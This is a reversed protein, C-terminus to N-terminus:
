LYLVRIVTSSYLTHQPALITTTRPAYLRERMAKVAAQVARRHAKRPTEPLARDKAQQRAERRMTRFHTEMPKHQSMLIKLNHQTVKAQHTIMSIWWEAAQLPMKLCHALPIKFISRYHPALAPHYEYIHNIQERAQQLAIQKQEQRTSGRIMTNRM